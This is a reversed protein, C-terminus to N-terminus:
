LGELMERRKPSFRIAMIRVFMLTVVLAIAMGIRAPEVKMYWFGMIETIVVVLVTDIIYTVKVRGETFYSKVTRFLELVALVMLVDIMVEKLSSHLIGGTHIGKAYVALDAGAQMIGFAMGALLVCLLLSLLVRSSAEFFLSSLDKIAEKQM